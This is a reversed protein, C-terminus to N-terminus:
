LPYLESSNKSRSSGFPLMGVLLDSKPYPFRLDIDQEKKLKQIEQTAIGNQGM